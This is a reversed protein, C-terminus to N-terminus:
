SYLPSGNDFISRLELTSASFKCLVCRNRKMDDFGDILRFTNTTALGSRQLFHFVDLCVLLAYSEVVYTLKKNKEEGEEYKNYLRSFRRTLNSSGEEITLHSAGRNVMMHFSSSMGPMPIHSAIM